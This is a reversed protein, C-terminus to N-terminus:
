KIRPAPPPTPPPPPPAAPEFPANALEPSLALVDWLAIVYSQLAADTVDLPVCTDSAIMPAMRAAWGRADGMVQRNFRQRAAHRERSLLKTADPANPKGAPRGIACLSIVVQKKGVMEIQTTTQCCTDPPEGEALISQQQAAVGVRRTFDPDTGMTARDLYTQAGLSAALFAFVVLVHLFQM